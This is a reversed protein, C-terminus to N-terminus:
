PLPGGGSPCDPDFFMCSGFAVVGSAYNCTRFRGCGKISTCNVADGIPVNGNCMCVTEQNDAMGNCDNDAASLCNKPGPNVGGGTCSGWSAGGPSLLCTQTGTGCATANCQRSTGPAVSGDCKCAGEQNDATGNCNNDAGSTCDLAAPSQGSCTSWSAGGASVNCTQSGASCIGSAGTACARAVGNGQGDCLCATEQNDAKGNCDNDAASGCNRAAPSVDGSCASWQGSKCIGTGAQPPGCAQTQGASCPCNDDNIGNCDDDVGNCTEVQPGKAGVCASFTGDGQCKAKGAQCTGKAPLTFLGGACDIMTEPVIGAAKDDCDLKASTIVKKAPDTSECAITFTDNDEDKAVFICHNSLCKAVACNATKTKPMKGVCDANVTCDPPGDPPMLM